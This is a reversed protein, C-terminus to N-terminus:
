FIRFLEQKKSQFDEYWSEYARELKRIESMGDAVGGYDLISLDEGQVTVILGDEKEFYGTMGRVIERDFIGQLHWLFDEWAVAGTISLYLRDICFLERQIKEILEDVPLVEESWINSSNGSTDLYSLLGRRGVLPIENATELNNLIIEADGNLRELILEYSRQIESLLRFFQNIRVIGNASVEEMETSDGHLNDTYSGGAHMSIYIPDRSNYSQLHSFPENAKAFRELFVSADLVSFEDDALANLVEHVLSTAIKVADLVAQLDCHTESPRNKYEDYVAQIESLLNSFSAQFRRDHHLLGLNSLGLNLNLNSTQSSELNGLRNGLLEIEAVIDQGTKM